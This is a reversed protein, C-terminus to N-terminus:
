MPAAGHHSIGMYYTHPPALWWSSTSLACLPKHTLYGPQMKQSHDPTHWYGHPHTLVMPGLMTSIWSGLDLSPEDARETTLTVLNFLGPYFVLGITGVVRIVLTREITYPQPSDM